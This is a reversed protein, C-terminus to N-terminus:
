HLPLNAVLYGPAGTVTPAGLMVGAIQPLPLNALASSAQGGIIPWVGSVLTEIETDGLARAGDGAQETVTAFLTPTGLTLAVSGNSVAASVATQLSLAIQQLQTGGADEVSIMADGMALQLNGTGDSTVTPPLALSLALQTANPDLLAAALSLDSAPVTKDFAGAAWLGALLSNVLDCEVAVGLDQSQAMLSPSAPMPASLYMGGAGGTVLAKAGLEVYLGDSSIASKSPTVTLATTAGLIKGSFSKAVLGALKANALPPVKSEIMSALSNQVASKVAGTVLDTLESPLSGVDLTFGDLTVTVAPLTTAIKGASISAGLDGSIHAATAGVTITTSGGICAVKYSASLKVSINDITVDTALANAKPALAVDITKLSISNIDIVAGLCGGNDYVPNLAQAAQTFDIAKADTAIAGGIATLAAPSAEAAITAQESGDSTALTGALVARVDRTDSGTEDIAHTEILSIGPAVQVDASFSGDSGVAVGASNITVTPTGTSVTATGTVTVSGGDVNTGRAPSTIILGPASTPEDPKTTANGCGAALALICLRKM